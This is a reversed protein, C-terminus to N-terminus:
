GVDGSNFTVNPPLRDCDQVKKVKLLAAIAVAHDSYWKRCTGSIGFKSCDRVEGDDCAIVCASHCCREEILINYVLLLIGEM